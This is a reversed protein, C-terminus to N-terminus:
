SSLVLEGYGLAILAEEGQPSKMEPTEHNKGGKPNKKQKPFQPSDFIYFCVEIDETRWLFSLVM